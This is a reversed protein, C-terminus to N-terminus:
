LYLLLHSLASILSLHSQGRIVTNLRWLRRSPLHHYSALLSDLHDLLDVLGPLHHVLDELRDGLRGRWM